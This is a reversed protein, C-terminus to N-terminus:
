KGYMEVIIPNRAIFLQYLKNLQIPRHVFMQISPLDGEMRYTYFQSVVPHEELDADSCEIGEQELIYGILMLAISEFKLSDDMIDDLEVYEMEGKIYEKAIDEWVSMVVNKLQNERLESKVFFRVVEDFQQLNAEEGWICEALATSVKPVGLYFPVEEPTPMWNKPYEEDILFDEQTYRELYANLKQVFKAPSLLTCQVEFHYMGEELDENESVFVLPSVVLWREEDLLEGFVDWALDSIYRLKEVAIVQDIIAHKEELVETNQILSDQIGFSEELTHTIREALNLQFEQLDMAICIGRKQRPYKKIDFSYETPHIIMNTSNDFEKVIM